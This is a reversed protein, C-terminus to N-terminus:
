LFRHICDVIKGHSQLVVMPIHLKNGSLLQQVKIWFNPIVTNFSKFFHKDDYAVGWLALIDPSLWVNKCM